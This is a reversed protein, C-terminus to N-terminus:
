PTSCLGASPRAPLRPFLHLLDPHATLAWLMQASEESHGESIRAHRWCAGVVEWWARTESGVPAQALGTPDYDALTILRGLDKRQSILFHAESWVTRARAHIKSPQTHENPRTRRWTAGDAPGPMAILISTSDVVVGSVWRRNSWRGRKAGHAVYAPFGMRDFVAAVAHHLEPLRAVRDELARDSKVAELRDILAAECVDVVVSPGNTGSAITPDTRRPTNM